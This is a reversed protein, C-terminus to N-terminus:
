FIRQSHNIERCEIWLANGQRCAALTLDCTSTKYGFYTGQRPCKYEKFSVTERQKSEMGSWFAMGMYIKM